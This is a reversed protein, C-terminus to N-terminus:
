NESFELSLHLFVYFPLFFFTITSFSFILRKEKTEILDKRLM